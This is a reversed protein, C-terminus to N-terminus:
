YRSAKRSKDLELQINITPKQELTQKNDFDYHIQKILSQTRFFQFENNLEEFRGITSFDTLDFM